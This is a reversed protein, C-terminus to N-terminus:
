LLKNIINFATLLYLLKQVQKNSLLIKIFFLM